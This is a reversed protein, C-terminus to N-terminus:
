LIKMLFFGCGKFTIRVQVHPLQVMLLHRSERSISLCACKRIHSPSFSGQFSAAPSITPHILTIFHFMQLQWKGRPHHQFFADYGLPESPAESWRRLFPLTHLTKHLGAQQCLLPLWVQHVVEVLGEHSWGWTM